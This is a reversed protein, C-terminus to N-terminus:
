SAFVKCRVLQIYHPLLLKPIAGVAKLQEGRHLTGNYVEWVLCGLGWM